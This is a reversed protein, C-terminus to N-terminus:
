IWPFQGWKCEIDGFLKGLRRKGSFKTNAGLCLDRRRQQTTKETRAADPPEGGGRQLRGTNGAAYPGRKHKQTHAGSARDTVALM